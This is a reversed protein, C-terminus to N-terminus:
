TQVMTRQSRPIDVKVLHRYTVYFTDATSRNRMRMRIRIPGARQANTDVGVMRGETSYNFATPDLVHVQNYQIWTNIDIIDGSPASIQQRGDTLPMTRGLAQRTLNYMLYNNSPASELEKTDIDELSATYRRTHSPVIRKNYELQLWLLDLPICQLSNAKINQERSKQQGSIMIQQLFGINTLKKRICIPKNLDEFREKTVYYTPFVFSLGREKREREQYRILGPHPLYTTVYMEASTIEIADAAKDVDLKILEDRYNLEGSPNTLLHSLVSTDYLVDRADALTIELTFGNLAKMPIMKNMRGFGSGWLYTVFQQARNSIAIQNNNEQAYLTPRPRRLLLVPAKAFKLDTFNKFDERNREMLISHQNVSQVIHGKPLIPGTGDKLDVTVTEDPPLVFLVDGPQVYNRVDFDLFTDRPFVVDGDNADANFGDKIEDRDVFLEANQTTEDGEGIAVLDSKVLFPLRVTTPDSLVQVNGSQHIGEMPLSRHQVDVPISTNRLQEILVNYHDVHELVQGNCDRWEVTKFLKQVSGFNSISTRIKADRRNFEDYIFQVNIRSGGGPTLLNPTFVAANQNFYQTIRHYSWDNNFTDNTNQRLRVLQGTEGAKLTYIDAVANYEYRDDLYPEFGYLDMSNVQASAGANINRGQTPWLLKTNPRIRVNLTLFVERPVFSHGALTEKYPFDFRLKTSGTGTTIPFKREKCRVVHEKRDYYMHSETRQYNVDGKRYDFQPYVKGLDVNSIPVPKFGATQTKPRPYSPTTM